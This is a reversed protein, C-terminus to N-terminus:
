KVVPDALMPAISLTHWRRADDDAFRVDVSVLAPLKARNRWADSWSAASEDGQQGYYHLSLGKIGRLLIVDETKLESATKKFDWPRYLRQRIVLDTKEAAGPHPAAELTSVYLGGYQVAVAFSSIFQVSGATGKLVAAENTNADPMGIPRAESVLNRLYSQVAEVSTEDMAKDLRVSAQRAGQISTLIMVAMMVMLGLAVLMEVLTFGLEPSAPALSTKTPASMQSAPQHQLRTPSAGNSVIM